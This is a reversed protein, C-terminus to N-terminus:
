RLPRTKLVLETVDHLGVDVYMTTTEVGRGSGDPKNVTLRYAGPQLGRIAFHGAKDLPVTGRIWAPQTAFSIVATGATLPQGRSDLASGSVVRTDVRALAFRVDATEGPRLSIAAAKSPDIVGPFYTVAFEAPAIASGDDPVPAAAVLYEGAPFAGSSVVGDPRVKGYPMATLRETGNVIERRLLHILLSPPAEGEPTTILGAVRGGLSLQLKISDRSEGERIVFSYGGPVFLDPDGPHSASVYGEKSAMLRCNAPPLDELLFKGSEDSTAYRVKAPPCPLGVTVGALPRDRDDVVVGSVRAMAPQAPAPHPVLVAALMVLAVSTTTM